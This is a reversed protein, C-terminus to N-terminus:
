GGHMFAAIENQVADTAELFAFHGCAPLVVLRGRPLAAAIHEAASVPVFDHDGHLVLTPAELNALETLLDFPQSFLTEELRQAIIRGRLVNEHTVRLHLRAVDMPHVIGISFVRRLLDAELQPDGDAYAPSSLLQRQEEIHREGRQRRFSLFEDHDRKSVPGTNMLVIRTVRDPHRVAFRLALHGGWSHGLLTVAGLRLADCVAKLDAVFRDVTIHAPDLEGRSRGHGRQDYYVLRAVDALRDMSPRLYTHDITGPGGHIVIIPPGAGVTRVFLSADPVEVWRVEAVADGTPLPDV